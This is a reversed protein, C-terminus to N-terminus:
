FIRDLVMSGGRKHARIISLDNSTITLEQPAHTLLYGKAEKAETQATAAVRAAGQARYRKVSYQRSSSNASGWGIVLLNDVVLMKYVKGGSSSPARM